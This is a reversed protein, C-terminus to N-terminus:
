NANFTVFLKIRLVSNLQPVHLQLYRKRLCENPYPVNHCYILSTVNACPSYCAALTIPSCGTTNAHILTARSATIQTEGM